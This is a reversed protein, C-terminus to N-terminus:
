GQDPPSIGATSPAPFSRERELIEILKKFGDFWSKQIDPTWSSDFEPFKALIIQALNRAKMQAAKGQLGSIKQCEPCGGGKKPFGHIECIAPPKVPPVVSLPPGKEHDQEPLSPEPLTAVEVEGSFPNIGGVPEPAAMKITVASTSGKGPIQVILGEKEMRRLMISLKGIEFPPLGMEKLVMKRTIVAQSSLREMAELVATRDVSTPM